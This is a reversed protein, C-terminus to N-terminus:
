RPFSIIKIELLCIGIELMGLKEATAWSIDLERDELFPGRDTITCVATKGNLHNRLLIVTGFPLYRHAATDGYMDFKTQSATEKGHFDEGYFSVMWTQIIGEKWMMRQILVGLTDLRKEIRTLDVKVASTAEAKKAEGVIKGTLAWSVVVMCALIGLCVGSWNPKQM